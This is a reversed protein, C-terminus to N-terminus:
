YIVNVNIFYPKILFPIIQAFNIWNCRRNKCRRLNDVSSDEDDNDFGPGYEDDNDDSGFLRNSGNGSGEEYNEEDPFGFGISWCYFYLKM